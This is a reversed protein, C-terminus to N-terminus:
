CIPKSEILKVADAAPLPKSMLFGQAYQCGLDKLADM